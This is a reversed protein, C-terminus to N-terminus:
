LDCFCGRTGKCGVTYIGCGTNKQPTVAAECRLSLAPAPYRDYCYRVRNCCSGSAAFFPCLASNTCHRICDFDLYELAMKGAAPYDGGSLLLHSIGLDRLVPSYGSATGHHPAQVIFYDSYLQDSLRALTDPTCDGTMLIDDLSAQKDRRNHFVLSMANAAESYAVRASPSSLLAQIDPAAPSRRIEESFDDLITLLEQLRRVDRQCVDLPARHRPSFDRCCRTYMKCFEDKFGAFQRERGGLYPNFLCASLEDVTSRCLDPFDANERPPWLVEYTIGDFPFRDEQGLLFVKDLGVTGAIRDFAYLCSTNVQACETQAPLFVHAFLAFDILPSLGGRDVPIAPLYVRSFTDPARRIIQLFGNMHDRHYHTLLFHRQQMPQYRLAIESFRRSLEGDNERLRHNISGCDVMLIERSKGCLVTCAGYEVNQMELWQM